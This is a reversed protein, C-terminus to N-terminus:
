SGGTWRCAAPRSREPRWPRVGARMRAHPRTTSALESLRDGVRYRGNRRVLWGVALMNSAIRFVTTRPLGTRATLGALSLDPHEADFAGLVLDARGLATM